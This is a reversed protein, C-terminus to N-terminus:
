EETLQQALWKAASKGFDQPHCQDLLSCNRCKKAQYRAKPTQKTQVIERCALIASLTLSRLEEDFAVLHRRRVEGYFLAGEPVTSNEM